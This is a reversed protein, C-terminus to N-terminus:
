TKKGPTVGDAFPLAAFYEPPMSDLEGNFWRDPLNLIEGARLEKFTVYGNPHTVTEKHPNAAVLDRSCKPCGAHADQAAISAPSDGERVEYVRM